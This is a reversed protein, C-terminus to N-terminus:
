SQVAEGRALALAARGQCWHCPGEVFPPDGPCILPEGPAYDCDGGDLALLRELAALLDPAAAILLANGGADAFADDVGVTCLTLDGDPSAAIIDFVGPDDDHEHAAWPGPTHQATM